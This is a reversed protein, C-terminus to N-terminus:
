IKYTSPIAAPCVIEHLVASVSDAVADLDCCVSMLSIKFGNFISKASIDVVRLQLFNVASGGFGFLASIRRGTTDTTVQFYDAAVRVGRMDARRINFPLVEGHTHAHPPKSPECISEALFDVVMTVHDRQVVHIVVKASHM